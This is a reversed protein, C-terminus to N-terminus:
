ADHEKTWRSYPLSALSSNFYRSDSTVETAVWPPLDIHQAENQIEVEAVVLGANEGLLEDVEWTLGCYDTVYRVKELIPGECLKLIQEADAVPM